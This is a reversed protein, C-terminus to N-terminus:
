LRCLQRETKAERRQDSDDEAEIRRNARRPEIRDFRQAASRILEVARECYVLARRESNVRKCSCAASPPSRAGGPTFIGTARHKSARSPICVLRVHTKQIRSASTASGAHVVSTGFPPSATSAKAGSSELSAAAGGLLHGVVIGFM